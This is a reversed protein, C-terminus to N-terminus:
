KGPHLLGNIHTAIAADLIDAWWTLVRRMGREAKARQYHASVGPPAHDLVAEIWSSAFLPREDDDMSDEAITKLSSRWGHPVAIGKYGMNWFAAPLSEVSLHDSKGYRPKFLFDGDTPLRRLHKTVASTLHLKQDFPKRQWDSVKMRARPITWIVSGDDQFEFEKWQAAVVEGTRQASYAQLLMAIRTSLTAGSNDIDHLLKGLGKSETIAPHKEFLVPKETSKLESKLARAANLALGEKGAVSALVQGILAIVKPALKPYRERAPGVASLVDDSTIETVPKSWLDSHSVYNWMRATAQQLTHESWKSNSTEAMRKRFEEWAAEFTLAPKSPTGSDNKLRYAEARIETLLESTIDGAINRVKVDKGDIRQWATLTGDKNRCFFLAAGDAM